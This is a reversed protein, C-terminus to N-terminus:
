TKRPVCIVFFQKHLIPTDQAPMEYISTKKM